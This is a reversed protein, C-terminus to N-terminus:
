TADMAQVEGRRNLFLFEQMEREGEEILSIWDKLGVSGIKRLVRM